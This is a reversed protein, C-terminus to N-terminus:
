VCRSCNKRFAAPTLMHVRKFIKSFHYRDSFGFEAAIRDIPENTRSLRERAKDVRLLRQFQQPTMGYELLFLRHLSNASLGAKRSITTNDLPRDLNQKLIALAKELRDDSIKPPDFPMRSEPSLVPLCDALLQELHLLKLERPTAPFEFCATDLPQKLKRLYICRPTKMSFASFSFHVYLQTFPGENRTSFRTLPPIVVAHDPTPEFIKGASDIFQTRGGCHYHFRWFCGCSDTFNWDRVSPIYDWLLINIDFRKLM